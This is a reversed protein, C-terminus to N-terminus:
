RFRTGSSVYREFGVEVCNRSRREVEAPTEGRNQAHRKLFDAGFDPLPKWRVRRLPVTATEVYTWRMEGVSVLPKDGHREAQRILMAPLTRDAPAFSAALQQRLASATRM